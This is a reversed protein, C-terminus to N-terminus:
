MHTESLESSASGIICTNRVPCREPINKPFARWYFYWKGIPGGIRAYLHPIKYLFISKWQNKYIKPSKWIFISKQVWNTMLKPGSRFRRYQRSSVSRITHTKDWLCLFNSRNHFFGVSVNIKWFIRLNKTMPSDRRGDLGMGHSLDWRSTKTNPGWEEWDGVEYRFTEFTGPPRPDHFAWAKSLIKFFVM